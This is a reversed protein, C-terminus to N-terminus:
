KAKKLVFYLAKNEKTSEMKTPRKVEMGPILAVYALHIEEGKIEIIGEAKLDKAPGEKGIMDISVPSKAGDVTYGMVHTM